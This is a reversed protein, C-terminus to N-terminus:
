RTRGILHSDEDSGPFCDPGVPDPFVSQTRITTKGELEQQLARRLSRVLSKRATEIEADTGRPPVVVALQLQGTGVVRLSIEGADITMDAYTRNSGPFTRLEVRGQSWLDLFTRTASELLTRLPEIGSFMRVELPTNLDKTWLVSRICPVALLDVRTTM